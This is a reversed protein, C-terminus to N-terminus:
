RLVPLYLLGLFSGLLLMWCGLLGGFVFASGRSEWLGVLFGALVLGLVGSLVLPAASLVRLRERGWVLHGSVLVNGWTSNLRSSKQSLM